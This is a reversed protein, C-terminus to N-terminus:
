KKQMAANQVLIKLGNVGELRLGAREAPVDGGLALHPRIFNHYIRIGALIVSDQRKLGRCGQERLRFTNGNWSEMQNNHLPTKDRAKSEHITYMDRPNKQKYVDRWAEGFNGAGDSSLLYPKKGAINMCSRFLPRVDDTGKNESVMSDIVYRTETDLMHFAYMRVGAVSMYVEDIRWHDGVRPRLTKIYEDVMTGYKSLWKLIGIHSVDIGRQALIYETKRLSSGSYVMNMGEIITDLGFRSKIGYPVYRSNCIKCYRSQGRPITQKDLCRPCQTEPVHWISRAEPKRFVFVAHMHKCVSKKEAHDPCECVWGVKGLRVVYEHNPITESPVAYSNRGLKRIKSNSAIRRGHDERTM